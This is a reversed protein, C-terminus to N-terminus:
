LKQKVWLLERVVSEAVSGSRLEPPLVGFSYTEVELPLGDGRLPLIEELFFRTTGCCGLHAAFIPVHFHVRCEEVEDGGARLAVALEPLDLFRRLEGDRSRAVAQHLYCPEDFRMLGPIEDARACLASSLQLKAVRVGAADLAALCDAPSEFEVAQHCCDFCLGALESLPSPLQLREFFSLADATTELVCGPEPELALVIEVGREQRIRELHELTELLQRRVAPWDEERFGPKFAVPVSSISGSLGAPLWGALLDALRRTYVSRAPDRWDPLYVREKM